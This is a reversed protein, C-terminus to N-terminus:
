TVWSILALARIHSNKLFCGMGWGVPQRVPFGDSLPHGDEPVGKGLPPPRVFHGCRDNVPVM